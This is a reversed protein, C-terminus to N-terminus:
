RYSLITAWYMKIYPNLIKLSMINAMKLVKTIPHVQYKKAEEM